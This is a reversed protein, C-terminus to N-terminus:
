VSLGKPTYNKNKAFLKKLFFKKKMKKIQSCEFYQKEDNYDM